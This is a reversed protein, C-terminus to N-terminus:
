LSLAGQAPGHFEAITIADAPMTPKQHLSGSWGHCSVVYLQLIFREAVSSVNQLETLRVSRSKEAWANM